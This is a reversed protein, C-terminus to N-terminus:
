SESSDARIDYPYTPQHPVLKHDLKPRLNTVSANARKQCEDKIILDRRLYYLCVLMRSLDDGKSNVLINSRIKTEIFRIEKSMERIRTSLTM